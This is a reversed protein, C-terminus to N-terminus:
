FSSGSGGRSNWPDADSRAKGFALAALRSAGASQAFHRQHIGLDSQQRSLYLHAVCASGAAASHSIEVLFLNGARGALRARDCPSGFALPQHDEGEGFTSAVGDLDGGHACVAPGSAFVMAM